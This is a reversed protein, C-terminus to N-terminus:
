FALILEAPKNVDVVISAVTNVPAKGAILPALRVLKGEVDVASIKVAVVICFVAVEFM